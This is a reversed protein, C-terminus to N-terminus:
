SKQMGFLETFHIQQGSRKNSEVLEMDRIQSTVLQEFRFNLLATSADQCSGQFDPSVGSVGMTEPDEQVVRM